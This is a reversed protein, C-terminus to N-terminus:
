AGHLEVEQDAVPHDAAFIRRRRAAAEPHAVATDGDDGGAGGTEVRRLDDLFKEAAGGLRAGAPVRLVATASAFCVDLM